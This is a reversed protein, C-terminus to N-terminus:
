LLLGGGGGFPPGRPLGGTAGVILVGDGDGEGDGVGDGEGEGEGLAPVCVPDNSKLFIM